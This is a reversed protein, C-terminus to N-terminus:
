VAHINNLELNKEPLLLSDVLGEWCLSSTTQITTIHINTPMYIVLCLLNQRRAEAWGLTIQFRKSAAAQVAKVELYLMFFKLHIQIIHCYFSRDNRPHGGAIHYLSVPKWCSSFVLLHQIRCHMDEAFCASYYIEGTRWKMIQTKILDM